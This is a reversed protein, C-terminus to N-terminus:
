QNIRMSLKTKRVISVFSYLYVKEAKLNRKMLDITELYEAYTLEKKM